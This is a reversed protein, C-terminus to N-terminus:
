SNVVVIEDDGDLSNSDIIDQAKKAKRLFYNRKAQLYYLRYKKLQYGAVIGVCFSVGLLSILSRDSLQMSM